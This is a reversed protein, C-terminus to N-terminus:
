IVSLLPCPITKIVIGPSEDLWPSQDRIGLHLSSSTAEAIHLLQDTRITMRCKEFSSCDEELAQDWEMRIIEHDHGWMAQCSDDIQKLQTESWLGGKGQNCSAWVRKRYKKQTVRITVEDMDLCTFCDGFASEMDLDAMIERSADSNSSAGNHKTSSENDQDGTSGSTGVVTGKGPDTTAKTPSSSPSTPEQGHPESSPRAEPTLEPTDKDGKTSM